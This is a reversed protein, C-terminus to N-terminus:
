FRSALRRLQSRLNAPHHVLQLLAMPHGSPGLLQGSDSLQTGAQGVLQTVWQRGDFRDVCVAASSPKCRPQNTAVHHYQFFLDVPQVVDDLRKQVEGPRGTRTIRRM